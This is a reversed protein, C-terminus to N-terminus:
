ALGIVVHELFLKWRLTLGAVEASRSQEPVADREDM